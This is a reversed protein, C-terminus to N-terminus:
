GNLINDRCDFTSVTGISCSICVNCTYMETYAITGNTGVVWGKNEDVFSLAHFDIDTQGISVDVWSDGGNTTKFVAGGLGAIFITDEDVYQVDEFDKAPNFGFDGLTWTDVYAFAPNAFVSMGILVSFLLLVKLSSASKLVEFTQDIRHTNKM